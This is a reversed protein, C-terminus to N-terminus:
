AINADIEHLAIENFRRCPQASCRRRPRVLNEIWLSIKSQRSTCRSTENILWTEITGAAASGSIVFFPRQFKM